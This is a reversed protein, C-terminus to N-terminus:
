ESIRFNLEADQNLKFAKISKAIQQMWAVSEYKYDSEKISTELGEKSTFFLILWLILALILGFVIFFPHYFALLILGFFIQILATPIDLLLKSIGKQLNLTDFFRNVKEPIYYSDAKYLDFRPIKDVFDFANRTFIRQQIQEIIKMQNMQLIGVVLVGSVVLFILVYISTVMSAGLVFGIIAQVGIPVSLQVLGNLVSYFYIAGIESKDKSILQWFKSLTIKREVENM